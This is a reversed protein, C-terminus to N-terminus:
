AEKAAKLMKIEKLLRKREALLRELITNFSEGKSGMQEIEDHVKMTVKMTTTEEEDMM